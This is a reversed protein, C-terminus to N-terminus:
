ESTEDTFEKEIMEDNNVNGETIFAQRRSTAEINKIEINTKEIFQIEDQSESDILKINVEGGNLVFNFQNKISRKFFVKTEDIDEKRINHEAIKKDVLSNFKEDLQKELAEEAMKKMQTQMDENLLDTRSMRKILIENELYDKHMVVIAAIVALVIKVYMKKTKIKFKSPSNKSMGVIQFEDQSINLLRAYGEIILHWHDIQSKAQSFDNIEVGYNFVIEIIGEDDTLTKRLSINEDFGSISSYIVGAAYRVSSIANTLTRIANLISETNQLNTVDAFFKDSNLGIIGHIGLRKLNELDLDELMYTNYSKLERVIELINERAIKRFRAVDPNMELSKKYEDLKKSVESLNFLSNFERIIQLTQLLHDLRDM